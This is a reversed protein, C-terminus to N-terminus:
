KATAAAPAAARVDMCVLDGANNRCYIKGDSLVPAVWCRGTLVSARALEKFQAPSANAIVLEGQEGLVILKGGGLIVTGKGLGQQKWQVDGTAFDLCTLTSDDFGYLNGKWLVSTALQNRMNKTQWLVQPGASDLQILAGGKSYGSAIFIKDGTVIPTTANVDYSTKWPHRAVEAGTAVERVVLGFANFSAVCKKGGYEFAIPAGYSADDQGAKWVVNGTSKDLAVTSSGRGGADVILLKDAILPSGAYGWHPRRGDFDKPLNKSWVVKGSAADLCFLDGEHSLTYVRNDDVTPTAAPGGEFQRADLPCSYSFRWIEKGTEADLCYVIDKDSINGVTYLRGRSVAMSSAGPGLSIKWLQKPGGAPWKTEWNTEDTVGDRRVGRWQPWDSSADPARASLFTAVQALIVLVTLRPVNVTRLTCCDRM